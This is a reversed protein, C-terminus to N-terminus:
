QHGLPGRKSAISDADDCNLHHMVVITFRIAGERIASAFRRNDQPAEGIQHIARNLQPAGSPNVFRKYPLSKHAEPHKKRRQPV